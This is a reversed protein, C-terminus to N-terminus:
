GDPGKNDQSPRKEAARAKRFVHFIIESLRDTSLTQGEKLKSQEEKVVNDLYDMM